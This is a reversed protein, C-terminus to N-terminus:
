LIKSDEIYFKVAKNIFVKDDSTALLHTPFIEFSAENKLTRLKSEGQIYAHFM